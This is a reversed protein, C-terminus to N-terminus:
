AAVQGESWAASNQLERLQAQLERTNAKETEIVSRMGDNKVELARPNRARQEAVPNTAMLHTYFDQQEPTLRRNAKIAQLTEEMLQVRALQEELTVPDKFVPVRGSDIAELSKIRAASIAEFGRDTGPRAKAALDEVSAKAAVNELSAEGSGRM